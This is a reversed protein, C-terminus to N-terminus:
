RLERKLLLIQDQLEAVYGICRAHQAANYGAEREANDKYYDARTTEALLQGELRKIKDQLPDSHAAKLAKRLVSNELRLVEVESPGPIFQEGSEIM